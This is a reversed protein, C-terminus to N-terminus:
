LYRVDTGSLLLDCVRCGTPTIHLRYYASLTSNIILAFLSAKALKVVIM